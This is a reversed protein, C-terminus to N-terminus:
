LNRFCRMPRSFLLRALSAISTTHQLSNQDHSGPPSCHHHHRPHESVLTSANPDSSSRQTKPLFDVKIFSPPSDRLNICRSITQVEEVVVIPLTKPKIFNVPKHSNLSSSLPTQVTQRAQSFSFFTPWQAHADGSRLGM